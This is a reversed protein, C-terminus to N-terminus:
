EESIGALELLRRWQYEIDEKLQELRWKYEPKLLHKFRGQYKLYEEIPKPKKVIVNIKYKGDIVEYLPFI